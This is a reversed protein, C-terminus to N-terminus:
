THRPGPTASFNQITRKNRTYVIYHHFYFLMFDHYADFKTKQKESQYTKLKM